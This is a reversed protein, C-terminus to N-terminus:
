FYDNKRLKWTVELVRLALYERCNRQTSKFLTEFTYDISALDRARDQTFVGIDHTSLDSIRVQTFAKFKGVLGHQILEHDTTSLLSLYDLRANLIAFVEAHSIGVVDGVKSADSNICSDESM